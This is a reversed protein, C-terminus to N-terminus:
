KTTIRGWKDFYSNVATSREIKMQEAERRRALMDQHKIVNSGKMTFPLILIYRISFKFIDDYITQKANSNSFVRTQKTKQRRTSQSTNVETSYIYRNRLTVHSLHDLNICRLIIMQLKLIASIILFIFFPLINPVRQLPLYEIFLYVAISKRYLFKLM